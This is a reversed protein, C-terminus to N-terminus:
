LVFVINPHQVPPKMFLFSTRAQEYVEDITGVSTIEVVRRDDKFYKMVPVTEEQFTIFRKKITDINDDARGSTKGRELLRRELVDLPCSFSLAVRGRGIMREFEVAQEMSRPFGDILFGPATQNEQIRNRLLSLILSQSVLLILEVSIRSRHQKDTPVMPVMKGEKMIADAKLGTESGKQVEERLLDGTSLHILGFEQALRSCRREKEPDLVEINPHNIPLVDALARKTFEYVEDITPISSIKVLKGVSEYHQVVPMSQNEFTVFRKKITDINDDARGSTKGRELLRQELVDLPCNYFLVKKCPGVTREFEIAQDLARPFGDILFGITNFHEIMAKRLLSITIEMPVIKGEKMLGSAQQGVVSGTEVEHRLLDGASLHALRFQKALIACQTGKGSGPGGLVFIVNPHNLPGEVLNMRGLRTFYEIVPYSTDVFTKFRKKITDINDDARGSTEGRKLLRKELVPEPCDFFLVLKCAAIQEEFVKAQDLQRPFGDILFGPCDKAADMAQRLLRITIEMPVIKGEKMISDIEKAMPSNSSVEQRLLDGASLHAYKFEQALRVCQTGKGSGPGGLVFVINGRPRSQGNPPIGPLVAKAPIADAAFAVSASRIDAPTSVRQLDNSTSPKKTPLLPLPAIRYKKRNLTPRLPDQELLSRLSLERQLQEEKAEAPIFLDWRIRSKESLLKEARIRSICDEIFLLPDDPQAFTLGTIISELLQNIQNREFYDRAEQYTENQVFQQLSWM